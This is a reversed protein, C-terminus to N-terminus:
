GPTRAAPRRFRRRRPRRPGSPGWETGIQEWKERSVRTRDAPYEGRGPARCSRARPTPQPPRVVERGPGPPGPMRSTARGGLFCIGPVWHVDYLRPFNCQESRPSIAPVKLIRQLPKVGPRHSKFFHRMHHWDQTQLFSEFKEAIRPIVGDLHCNLHTSALPQPGTTCTLSTM